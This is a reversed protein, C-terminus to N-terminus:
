LEDKFLYEEIQFRFRDSSSKSTFYFIVPKYQAKKLDVAPWSYQWKFQEPRLVQHFEIQTLM